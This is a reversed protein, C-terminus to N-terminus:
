EEHAGGCLGVSSSFPKYGHYASSTVPLVFFDDATAGSSTEVVRVLSVCFLLGNNTRGEPGLRVRPGSFCHCHPVFPKEGKKEQFGTGDNNTM